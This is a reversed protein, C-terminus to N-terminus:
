EEARVRRSKGGLLLELSHYAARRIWVGVAPDRALVLLLDAAEYMQGLQGLAQAAAIRVMADTETDRGLTSLGALAIEDAQGLQGLAQAAASRVATDISTDRTLALLRSLIIEDVRGLQGVTQVATRRIGVTVTSEHALTLLSAAVQNDNQFTALTTLADWWRQKDSRAIELLKDVIADHLAADVQVRDVVACAALYLHRHLLDEYEDKSEFIRRVLATPHKRFKNLSGLLLLIVERWAPDHLHPQIVTWIDDISDAHEYEIYAAALYEQFTLHAFSYVGEGREILLGTRAKIMTIFNEAEQGASRKDLNLQPDKRLFRAIQTRLDGEAM